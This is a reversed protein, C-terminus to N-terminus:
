VHTISPIVRMWCILQPILQYMDEDAAIWIGYRTSSGILVLYIPSLPWPRSWGAGAAMLHTSYLQSM